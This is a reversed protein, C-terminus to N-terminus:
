TCAFAAQLCRQCSTVIFVSDARRRGSGRCLDVNLQQLGRFAQFWAADTLAVPSPHWYRLTLETLSFLEHLSSCADATYLHPGPCMTLCQLDPPYTPLLTSCDLARLWMCSALIDAVAALKRQAVWGVALEAPQVRGLFSPAVPALLLSASMRISRCGQVLDGLLPTLYCPPMNYRLWLDLGRTHVAQAAAMRWQQCVSALCVATRLVATDSYFPDHSAQEDTSTDYLTDPYYALAAEHPLHQHIAACLEVPLEGAHVVTASPNTLLFVCAPLLTGSAAAGACPM